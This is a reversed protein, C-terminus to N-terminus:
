HGHMAAWVAQEPLKVEAAVQSTGLHEFMPRLRRLAAAVEREAEGLERRLRRVGAVRVRMLDLEDRLLYQDM